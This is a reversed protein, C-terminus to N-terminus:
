EVLEKLHERRREINQRVTVEIVSKGRESAPGLITNILESKDFGALQAVDLWKGVEVSPRFSVPRGKKSVTELTFKRIATDLNTTSPQHIVTM